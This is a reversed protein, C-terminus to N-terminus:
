RFNSICFGPYVSNVAVATSLPRCRQFVCGFLLRSDFYRLKTIEPTCYEESSLKALNNPSEVREKEITTWYHVDSAVVVIR